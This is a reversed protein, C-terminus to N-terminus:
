KEAKLIKLLKEKRSENVSRSHNLQEELTEYRYFFFQKDKPNVVILSDGCAFVHQNVISFQQAGPITLSYVKREYLNSNPDINEDHILYNGCYHFRSEMMYGKKVNNKVSFSKYVKDNEINYFQLSDNKMVYFTNDLHQLFSCSNGELEAVLRGNNQFDFIAIEDYLNDSQWFYRNKVYNCSLTGAINTYRSPLIFSKGTKTETIKVIGDKKNREYSSAFRDYKIKGGNKTEFYGQDDVLIPTDQPYHLDYALTNGKDTKYILYREKYFAPDNGKPLVICIPGNKTHLFAFRHNDDNTQGIFLGANFLHRSCINKNYPISRGEYDYLLKQGDKKESIFFKEKPMTNDLKGAFKLTDNGEQFFVIYSSDTLEDYYSITLESDNIRYHNGRGFPDKGSWIVGKNTNFMFISDNRTFCIGSQVAWPVEYNPDTEDYSETTILVLRASDGVLSMLSRLQLYDADKISNNKCLSDIYLDIAKKYDSNALATSITNNSHMNNYITCGIYAIIIGGIITFVCIKIARLKSRLWHYLKSLGDSNVWKEKEQEIKSIFQPALFFSISFLLALIAAFVPSLYVNVSCYLSFFWFLLTYFVFTLLCFLLAYLISKTWNSPGTLGIFKWWKRQATISVSFLLVIFSVILFLSIPRSSSKKSILFIDNIWNQVQQLMPDEVINRFDTFDNNMEYYRKCGYPVHLTIHQKDSKTLNFVLENKRGDKIYTPQPWPIHIHNLSNADPDIIFKTQMYGIPLYIESPSGLLRIVLDGADNWALEYNENREIADNYDISVKDKGDFEGSNYFPSNYETLADFLPLHPLKVSKLNPCNAFARDSLFVSDGMFQITELSTCGEFAQKGISTVGSPITIHKLALCGMFARDGIRKLTKPLQISILKRCDYFAESEISNLKNPMVVSDLHVMSKFLGMPLHDLSDPLVYGESEEKKNSIAWSDILQQSLTNLYRTSFSRGEDDSVEQYDLNTLTVTGYTLKDTKIEKPFSYAFTHDKMDNATARPFYVIRRDYVDWLVGGSEIYRKVGSEISINLVEETPSIHLKELGSNINLSLKPCNSINLELLHLKEPLIINKLVDCNEIRLRLTDRGLNSLDITHLYPCQEISFDTKDKISLREVMANNKLCLQDVWMSDTTSYNGANIRMLSLAQEEKRNTEQGWFVLLISALIVLAMIIIRLLATKWRKDKAKQKANIVAALQDHVLEVYNANKGPVVVDTIIKFASEEEKYFRNYATPAKQKFQKEEVPQRSEGNVFHKEIYHIENYPLGDIANQYYSDLTINISQSASLTLRGEKEFLQSCILSLMLTNIDRRDKNRAKEIINLAIEDKHETNIIDEGPITVVQIAQESTMPHLRYRNEKLLPLRLSDVFDELYFFRDERLTIVFRFAAEHMGETGKWSLRNEVLVYLQKLFDRIKEDNERIAFLEEFQDLVIVPTVRQGNHYFHRTHFYHWLIRREELCDNSESLSSEVKLDKEICLRLIEALSMDSFDQLNYDALQKPAGLRVYLPHFKVQNDHQSEDIHKKLLPFVGARLLSTKGIGTSGYLTVISRKEILQLLDYTEALRGCFKYHRGDEYESPDKYPALGPWPNENTAKNINDSTNM